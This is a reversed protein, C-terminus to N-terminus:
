MLIGPSYTPVSRRYGIATVYVFSDYITGLVEHESSYSVSFGSYGDFSGPTSRFNSLPRAKSVSNFTPTSFTPGCREYFLLQSFLELALNESSIPPVTSKGLTSAM